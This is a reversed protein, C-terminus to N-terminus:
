EKRQYKAVTPLIAVLIIAKVGDINGRHRIYM